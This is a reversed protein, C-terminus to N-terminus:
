PLLLRFFREPESVDFFNTFSFVGLQDFQNTRIPTWAALPTVINTATLLVFNSATMGGAGSLFLNTGSIVPKCLILGTSVGLGTLQYTGTGTPGSSGGGGDAVLVAFTGNNAATFAYEDVGGTAGNYILVGNPDYVRMWAAFGNTASLQTRQLTIGDGQCANFSWLDMDGLSITGLSNVADALAGGNDGPPIIFAGPLKVFHFQYTGTGMPGSSGGGGDAVLVTFTGNTAATFAYERVGGLSSTVLLTGDPAYVRM